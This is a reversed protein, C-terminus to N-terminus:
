GWVNEIFEAPNTIVDLGILSGILEIIFISAVVVALGIVGHLIRNRATEVKVKDGGSTLVALAGTLFVFIFWIAAIVTLLGVITSIFQNFVQGAEEPNEGGLPGEGVFGGDPHLPIQALLNRM